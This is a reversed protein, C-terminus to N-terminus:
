CNLSSLTAPPRTSHISPPIIPTSRFSSYFSGRKKQQRTTSKNKEPAIGSLIM